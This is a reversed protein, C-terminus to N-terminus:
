RGGIKKILEEFAEKDNISFLFDSSGSARIGTVIDATESLYVGFCEVYMEKNFPFHSNKNTVFRVGAKKMKEKLEGGIPVNEKHLSANLDYEDEKLNRM